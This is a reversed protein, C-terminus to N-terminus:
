PPAPKDIKRVLEVASRLTARAAPPLHTLTDLVVYPAEVRDIAQDLALCQYVIESDTPAPESSRLIQALVNRAREYLAHREADTNRALGCVARLILPYFDTM